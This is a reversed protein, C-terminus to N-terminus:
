EWNMPRYSGTFVIMGATVFALIAVAIFIMKMIYIFTTKVNDYKRFVLRKKACFTLTFLTLTFSM